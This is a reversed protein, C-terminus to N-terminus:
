KEYQDATLISKMQKKHAIKSDLRAIRANFRAYESRKEGTKRNQHREKQQIAQELSINQM